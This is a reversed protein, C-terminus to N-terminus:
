DQKKTLSALTRAMTDLQKYRVANKRWASKLQMPTGSAYEGPEHISHTILSMSAVIVKDAIEIHGVIGAAGGILCYSGIRTSGAVAACGAIATHAGIHVNHGIQIQNDLRVDNELVTDEIAGRDISTNAGIECDDGIQVGGLQAVKLWKGQHMAIGFGDAGLVAGSHIRVRKGLQVRKVLTVRPMIVCSENINCHAGISCHEYVRVHDAIVTHEGIVVFAGIRASASVSASAHIIASPHIGLALPEDEDFLASIQAFTAYPNKSILCANPYNAADVESLVIVSAQSHRLQTNYKSNALFSLQGPKANALTGIGTVTIEGDGKYPLNFQEALTKLTLM